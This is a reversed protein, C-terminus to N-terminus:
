QNGEDKCKDCLTQIWGTETQTAGPQGCKECITSSLLEAFEISGSQNENCGSVYFRLGGFKEKVQVAEIQPYRNHDIDWQLQNCLSDILWYWGDGCEFGWCMATQDPQLNRQVFIKPYKDCLQKDLVSNM